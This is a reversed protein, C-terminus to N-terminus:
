PWSPPFPTRQVQHWPPTAELLPLLIHLPGSFPLAQYTCSALLLGPTAQDCQPLPPSQLLLSSLSCASDLPCHWLSSGKNLASATFANTFLLRHSESQSLAVQARQPVNPHQSAERRYWRPLSRYSILYSTVLVSTCPGRCLCPLADMHTLGQFSGATSACPWGQHCSHVPAPTFAPRCCGDLCSLSSVLTSAKSLYTFKSLYQFLVQLNEGPKPTPLLPHLFQLHSGCFTEEGKTRAQHRPSAPSWKFM